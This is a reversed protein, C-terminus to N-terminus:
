LNNYFLLLLKLSKSNKNMDNKKIQKVWFIIWALKIFDQLNSSFQLPFIM